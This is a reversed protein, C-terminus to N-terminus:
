WFTAPTGTIGVDAVKCTGGAPASLRLRLRRGTVARVPIELADATAPADALGQWVGGVDQAEAAVDCRGGPVFTVAVRRFNVIREPDVVLWPAAYGDAPAWWTAADGDNALSSAHGALSSSSQTPNKLGFAQEPGVAMKRQVYPRDAAVPTVGDVFRPGDVTDVTLV